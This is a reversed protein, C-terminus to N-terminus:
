GASYLNEGKCKLVEYSLIGLLGDEAGEANWGNHSAGIRPAGSSETGLLFKDM